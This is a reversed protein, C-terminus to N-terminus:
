SGSKLKSLARLYKLASKPNDVDVEDSLRRLGAAVEPSRTSELGFYPSLLIQEASAGHVKEPRQSVTTANDVTELVFLNVAQLSGVVLPSHTTVIFQVNPLARSLTPLVTRQWSPHLHLDIEDILVVGRNETLKKGKPSNMCVHYLMDGVWGVYAKFGDSLASFPVVTGNMEFLYDPEKYVNVYVDAIRCNEPLLRNMLNIVQTYRGKNNLKFEPLWSALPVLTIHDEFLGAVRAYRPSRARDRSTPDFRDLTDVRRTAGYGVLFFAASERRYFIETLQDVLPYKKSRSRKWQFVEFDGQTSVEGTMILVGDNPPKGALEEPWDQADLALEVTASASSPANKENNNRPRPDHRTNRVLAEPRFGSDLLGPALSGLVIARLITSKGSGNDGLLVNVNPYMIKEDTPVNMKLDAKAITRLNRISISRVHMTKTRKSHSGGTQRKIRVPGTGERGSGPAQDAAAADAEPDIGVLKDRFQVNKDHGGV